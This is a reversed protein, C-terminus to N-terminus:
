LLPVLKIHLVFRLYQLGENKKRIANEAYIRASEINKNAIQKKVNAQEKKEEKAAKAAMREMQKKNFKLEFIMNFTRDDM